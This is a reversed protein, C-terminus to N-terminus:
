VRLGQNSGDTKVVGAAPCHPLAPLFVTSPGPRNWISLAIDLLIRIRSLELRDSRSSVNLTKLWGCSPLGLPFKEESVVNPRIVDILLVLGIPVPVARLM